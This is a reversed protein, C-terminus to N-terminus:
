GVLLFFWCEQSVIRNNVEIQEILHRNEEKALEYLTRKSEIDDELRKM